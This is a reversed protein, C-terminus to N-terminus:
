FKFAYGLKLYFGYNKYSNTLVHDDSIDLLGQQYGAMLRINKWEAGVGINFGADFKSFGAGGDFYFQGPGAEHVDGFSGDDFDHGYMDSDGGIGYAAYPGVFGFGEIGWFEKAYKVGLNVQIYNLDYNGEGGSIFEMDKVGKASYEVGGFLGFDEGFLGNREYQVGALYSIKTSLAMGGVNATSYQPGAYILVSSKKDDQASASVVCLAMAIACFVKKMM